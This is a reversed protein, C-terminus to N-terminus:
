YSTGVPISVYACVRERCPAEGIQASTDLHPNRLSAALLSERLRALGQDKFALKALTEGHIVAIEPYELLGAMLANLIAVDPKQSVVQSRATSAAGRQFRNSTRFHTYHRERFAQEYAQRVDSDEISRANDRLRAQLCAGQEPTSVPQAALESQWLRVGLPHM